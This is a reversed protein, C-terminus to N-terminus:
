EMALPRTVSKFAVTEPGSYPPVERHSPDLHRHNIVCRWTTPDIWSSRDRPLLNDPDHAVVHDAATLAAPLIALDVGGPHRLSPFLVARHGTAVIKDGLRWSPPTLDQIRAIQKWDCDWAAWDAAWLAPDYGGSLDVVEQITVRYATLTAPPM